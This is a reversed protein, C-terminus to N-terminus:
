ETFAAPAAAMRTLLEKQARYPKRLEASLEAPLAKIEAALEELEALAKTGAIRTMWEKVPSVPSEDIPAGDITITRERESKAEVTPPPASFQGPSTEVMEVAVADGPLIGHEETSEMGFVLDAYVERALDAAARWRLMQAPYKSWISDAKGTLGAREAMEITWTKSRLPRNRRKTEWTAKTDSSHTCEFYECLESSQCLAVMLSAAIVPKGKIIHLGRIAQAVSLGLDRAQLIMLFVSSPERMEVPLLPCGALRTAM